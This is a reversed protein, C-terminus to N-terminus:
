RSARDMGEFVLVVAVEHVFHSQVGIPGVWLFQQTRFTKGQWRAFIPTGKPVRVSPYFATM